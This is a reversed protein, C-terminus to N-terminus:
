TVKKLKGLSPKMIRKPTFTNGKYRCKWKDHAAPFRNRFHYTASEASYQMDSPIYVAKAKSDGDYFGDNKWQLQNAIAASWTGDVVKGFNDFSFMFMNLAIQHARKDATLFGSDVSFDLFASYFRLVDSPAAFFGGYLMRSHKKAVKKLIGFLKAANNTITENLGFVELTSRLSPQPTTVERCCVLKQSAAEYLPKIDDQFYSVCDWFAYTGKNDKSYAALTHVVDLEPVKHKKVLPLLVAKQNELFARGREPIGGDVVVVTGDFQAM